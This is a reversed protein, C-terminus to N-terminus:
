RPNCQYYISHELLEDIMAHPFDWTNNNNGSCGPMTVIDPVVLVLEPRQSAYVRANGKRVPIPCSVRCHATAVNVRGTALYTKV